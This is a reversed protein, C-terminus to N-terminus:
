STSQVLVVWGTDQYGASVIAKPDLWNFPTGSQEPQYGTEKLAVILILFAPPGALLFLICLATSDLALDMWKHHLYAVRAGFAAPYEATRTLDKGGSRLSEVM